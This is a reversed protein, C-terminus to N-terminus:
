NVFSCDIYNSVEVLYLMFVSIIYFMVLLGALPIHENKKNKSILLYGLFCILSFIFAMCFFLILGVLNFTTGIFFIVMVDALGIAENLIIKNKKFKLFFYLKLILWIFVMYIATYLVGYMLTEIDRNLLVSTICILGFVLLIWLSVLRQKFDQFLIVLSSIFLGVLLLYSFAFM